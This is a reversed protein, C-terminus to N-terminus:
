DSLEAYIPNEADAFLERGEGAGWIDDDDGVFDGLTAMIEELPRQDAAEAAAEAREMATVEEDMMSAVDDASLPPLNLDPTLAPHTGDEVLTAFCERLSLYIDWINDTTLQDLTYGGIHKYFVEAYQGFVPPVLAFAPHDRRLYLNEVEDLVEPKIPIQFM